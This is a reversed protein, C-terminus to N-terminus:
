LWSGSTTSSSSLSYSGPPAAPLSTSLSASTSCCFRSKPLSCLSSISSLVPGHHRSSAETLLLTSLLPLSDFVQEYSFSLHKQHSPGCIPARGTTASQPADPHSKPRVSPQPQGSIEM